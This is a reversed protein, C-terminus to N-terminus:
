QAKSVIDQGKTKLNSICQDLTEGGLLYTQCEAVFMKDIEANYSPITMPANNVLKPNLLVAKLSTMDYLADPNAGVIQPLLKNFDMNKEATLGGARIYAGETSYFRLFKYAEEPYKATVPISGMKTDSFTYGEVGNSGWKPLPAFVTQFDHPWTKTDKIEALMWAGTPVMAVKQNFYEARYALKNTTVDSLSVSTQSTNELDYRFQLWDRLNPDDFNLSGDAKYYANDLKTSYVGMLDYNQWSHFYSGYVKDQGSGTTMKEAYTKYDDWTWNLSPVPLNAADLMSKNIMVFWPTVDFPLGYYNGNIKSSVSYIDDYNIGESQIFKDLPQYLQRDVKSVMKAVSSEFMGDVQQGALLLTDVKQTYAVNDNEVPYQLDVKIDPYKAEFAQVVADNQAKLSAEWSYIIITKQAPASTTTTTTTQPASTTTTTTTTAGGTTTTQSSNTTNCGSLMTGLFLACTLLCSIKKGFKM